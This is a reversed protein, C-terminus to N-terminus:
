RTQHALFFGTDRQSSVLRLTALPVGSAYAKFQPMGWHPAYEYPLMHTTDVPVQAKGVLSSLPVPGFERSDQSNLPNDGLVYISDEPVRLKSVHLVSGGRNARLRETMQRMDAVRTERILGACEGGNMLCNVIEGPGRYVRKVYTEGAHRFVVVEGCRPTHSQYYARDTWIVSGSRLTPSMSEGVVVTPQHSYGAAFVVVGAALVGWRRKVPFMSMVERGVAAATLTRCPNEAENARYRISGFSETLEGIGDAWGITTSVATDAALESAARNTVVAINGGSETLTEVDDSSRRSWRTGERTLRNGLLCVLRYELAEGNVAAQEWGLM